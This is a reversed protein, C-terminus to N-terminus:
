LQIHEHESESKIIFLIESMTLLEMYDPRIIRWDKRELRKSVVSVNSRSRYTVNLDLIGLSTEKTGTNRPANGVCWCIQGVVQICVLFQCPVHSVKFQQRQILRQFCIILHLMPIFIIMLSIVLVSM